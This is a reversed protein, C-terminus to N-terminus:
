QQLVTLFAGEQTRAGDIQVIVPLDGISTPLRAGFTM